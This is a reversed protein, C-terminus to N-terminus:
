STAAPIFCRSATKTLSSPSRRCVPGGAAQSTASKSADARPQRRGEDDRCRAAKAQIDGAQRACGQLDAAQSTPPRSRRPIRHVMPSPMAPSGPRSPRSPRTCCEASRSRRPIPAQRVERRANQGPGRVESVTTGPKADREARRSDERKGRSREAPRKRDSGSALAAATGGADRWVRATERARATRGM